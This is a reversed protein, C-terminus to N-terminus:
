RPKSNANFENIYQRCDTLYKILSDLQKENLAGDFQDKDLVMVLGIEKIDRMPELENTDCVYFEVNTEEKAGYMKVRFYQNDM